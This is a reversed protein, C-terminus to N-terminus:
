DIKTSKDLDDQPGRMANKFERMARGINNAAM